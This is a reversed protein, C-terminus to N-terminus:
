LPIISRQRQSFVATDAYGIRRLTALCEPFFSAVEAPAHADSGLIVPIDLDFACQLIEESPYVEGVPKRLGATNIDLVLDNRKITQLARQVNESIDITPFLGFKKIVDFHGIIDFLGTAAAETLLDYYVV